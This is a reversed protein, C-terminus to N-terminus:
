RDPADFTQFRFGRVDEAFPLTNLVLHAPAQATARVPEAVCVSINQAHRSPFSSFPSPRTAALAVPDAALVRCRRRLDWWVRVCM